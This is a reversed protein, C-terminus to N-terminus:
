PRRFVMTRTHRSGAPVAEEFETDMASPSALNDAQTDGFLEGGPSREAGRASPYPSIDWRSGETKVQSGVVPEAEGSSAGPAM